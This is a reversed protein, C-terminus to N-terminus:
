RDNIFSWTAVVVQYRCCTYPLTSVVRFEEMRVSTDFFPDSYREMWTRNWQSMSTFIDGGDVGCCKHGRFLHDWAGSFTLVDSHFPGNYYRVLVEKLCVEMATSAKSVHSLYNCTSYVHM